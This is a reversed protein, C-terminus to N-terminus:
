SFAKGLVGGNEQVVDSLEHQVDANQFVLLALQNLVGLELDLLFLIPLHHHCGAVNLEALEVDVGLVSLLCALNQLLKLGRNSCLAIPVVSVGVRLVADVQLLHGVKVDVLLLVLVCNLFYVFAEVQAKLNEAAIVDLNRLGEIGASINVVLDSLYGDAKFEDPGAQEHHLVEPPIYGRVHGGAVVVDPVQEHIHRLVLFAVLYM